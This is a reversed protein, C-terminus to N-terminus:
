KIFVLWENDDLYSNIAFDIKSEDCIRSLNEKDFTDVDINPISVDYQAFFLTWGGIHLGDLVQTVQESSIREFYTKDAKDEINFLEIYEDNLSTFKIFSVPYSTLLSKILTLKDEDRNKLLNSILSSKVEYLKGGLTSNTIWPFKSLIENKHDVLVVM